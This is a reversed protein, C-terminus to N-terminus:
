GRGPESDLEFTYGKAILQTLLQRPRRRGARHISISWSMPPDSQTSLRTRYAYLSLSRFTRFPLYTPFSLTNSVAIFAPITSTQTSIVLDSDRAWDVGAEPRRLM